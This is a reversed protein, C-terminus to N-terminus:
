SRFSYFKDFIKIIIKIFLIFKFQITKRPLTLFSERAEQGLGKIYGEDENYVVPPNEGGEKM